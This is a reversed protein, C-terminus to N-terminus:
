TMISLYLNTFLFITIRNYLMTLARLNFFLVFYILVFYFLVFGFWCVM